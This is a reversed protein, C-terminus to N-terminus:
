PIHGPDCMINSASCSYFAPRGWGLGISEGGSWGVERGCATFKANTYPAPDAVRLLLTRFKSGPCTHRSFLWILTWWGEPLENELWM